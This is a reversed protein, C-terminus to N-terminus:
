MVTDRYKQSYIISINKKIQKKQYLDDVVIVDGPRLRKSWNSDFGNIIKMKIVKIEIVSM